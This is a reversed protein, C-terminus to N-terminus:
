LVCFLQSCFLISTKCVMIDFSWQQWLWCNMTLWKSSKNSFVFTTYLPLLYTFYICLYSKLHTFYSHYYIPYTPTLNMAYNHKYYTSIHLYITLYKIHFTRETLLMMIVFCTGMGSHLGSLMTHSVVLCAGWESHMSLMSSRTWHQTSTPHFAYHFSWINQLLAYMNLRNFHCGKVNIQKVIM